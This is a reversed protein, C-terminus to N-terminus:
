FRTHDYAHLPSCVGMDEALETLLKRHEDSLPIGRDANEEEWAFEMGGALEARDFPVLPEMGRAQGIHRDVHAMFTDLDMFRSVDWATLFSGQDASWPSEPPLGEPRWVGALLGGLVVNVSGIGLAKVFVEPFEAMLEKTRPLLTAGMDLVLPPQDGAPIGVSIPSNGAAATVVKGEKPQFRHSSVALGVCDEQLAMRTWNGAAGFHHHHYTTVAGVGYQQARAVALAMGTNCAHFGLGGDGDIVATAGDEREMRVDPRPNVKGERLLPIYNALARTGHSFVCRRDCAVLKGAVLASGESDM